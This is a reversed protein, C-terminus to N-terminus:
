KRDQDSRMAATARTVPGTRTSTGSTVGNGRPVCSRDPTEIVKVVVLRAITRPTGPARQLHNMSLLVAEEHAAVFEDRDV